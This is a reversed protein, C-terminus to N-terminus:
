NNNESNIIVNVMDKDEIKFNIEKGEIISRHKRLNVSRQGENTKQLEILCKSGYKMIDGGVM